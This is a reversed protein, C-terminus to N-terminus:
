LFCSVCLYLVAGQQAARVQQYLTEVGKNPLADDNIVNTNYAGTNRGSCVLSPHVVTRTKKIKFNTFDMLGVGERRCLPVISVVGTLASSTDRIVWLCGVILLQAGSDV